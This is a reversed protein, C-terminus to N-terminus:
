WNAQEWKIGFKGDEKQFGTQVRGAEQAIRVGRRLGEAPQRWAESCIYFVLGWMKRFYGESCVSMIVSM